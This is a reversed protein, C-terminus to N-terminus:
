LSSEQLKWTARMSVPADAMVAVRGEERLKLM